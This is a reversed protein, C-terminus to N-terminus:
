MGQVLGIINGDADKFWANKVAGWSAVGDVTKLDPLDYEEFTVGKGRLAKMDAAIDNTDLSIVTHKATGAFQSSYLFFGTGNGLKYVAGGENGGDAPKLGLKDAYWAKARELDKAPVMTTVTRNDFM